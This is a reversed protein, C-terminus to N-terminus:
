EFSVYESLQVDDTSFSKDCCNALLLEDKQVTDPVIAHTVGTTFHTM